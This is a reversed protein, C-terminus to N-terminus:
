LVNDRFIASREPIGTWCTEWFIHVDTAQARACPTASIINDEVLFAETLSEMAHAGTYRCLADLPRERCCEVDDEPGRTRHDEPSMGAGGDMRLCCGSATRTGDSVPFEPSISM